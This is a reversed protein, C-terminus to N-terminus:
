ATGKGNQIDASLLNSLDSLVVDPQPCDPPFQGKGDCIWAASMGVSRAGLIDREPDDGVFLVEPPVAEFHELAKLFLRASPKICGHSSSWVIVDFVDIVGVRRLEKEFIHCPSWINSVVGLPHTLSLESLVAAHSAPVRGAEHRAFVEELISLERAPLSRAGPLERLYDAITGFHDFNRPDCYDFLVREFLHNIVASVTGADLSDGGVDRYSAFYDIDPGFRDCEFMFTNGMDLFIVGFADIFRKHAM